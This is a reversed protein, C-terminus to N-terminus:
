KFPSPQGICVVSERLTFYVVDYTLINFRPELDFLANVTFWLDNLEPGACSLYSDELM